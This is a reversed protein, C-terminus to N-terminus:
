FRGGLLLRLDDSLLLNRGLSTGNTPDVSADLPVQSVRCDGDWEAKGESGDGGQTRGKHNALHWDDLSTLIRNAREIGTRKLMTRVAAESVGLIKGIAVNSYRETLAALMEGTPRLPKEEHLTLGAGVAGRTQELPPEAGGDEVGLLSAM